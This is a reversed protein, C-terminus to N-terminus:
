SSHAGRRLLQIATWRFCNPALYTTLTWTIGPYVAVASLWQFVDQSVGETLRQILQNIQREPPEMEDIWRWVGVALYGNLSTFDSLASPTLEYPGRVASVEPNFIRSAAIMGSETAPLVHLGLQIEVLWELRGWDRPDKPTLIVTTQWERFSLAWNHLNGTGFDFLGSGDSLIICRRFDHMYAVDELDINQAGGAHMLRRPDDHFTYIVVYVGAEELANVISRSYRALHDAHGKRDILITYEPSTRREQYAPSFFGGNSVTALIMRDIDLDNSPLTVLRRMPQLNHSLRSQFLIPDQNRQSLLRRMEKRFLRQTQKAYASLLKRSSSVLLAILVAPVLFALAAFPGLLRETVSFGNAIVGFNGSSISGSPHPLESSSSGTFAFPGAFYRISVLILFVASALLLFSLIQRQYARNRTKNLQRQANKKFLQTYEDVSRWDEDSGSIKDSNQGAIVTEPFWYRFIRRFADQEEASRCVVPGLFNGLEGASRPGLTSLGLALLLSNLRVLQPASIEFGNTALDSFLAAM